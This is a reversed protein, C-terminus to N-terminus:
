KMLERVYKLQNFIELILVELAKGKATKNRGYDLDLKDRLVKFKEYASESPDYFAEYLTLTNNSLSDAQSFNVKTSEGQNLRKEIARAMEDEAVDPQLIVKYAIYVDDISIHKDEECENCYVSSILIDALDDNTVTDILFDCNPCKIM